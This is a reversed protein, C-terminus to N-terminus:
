IEWPSPGNKGSQVKALQGYALRTLASQNCRCDTTFPEPFYGIASTLPQRVVRSITCNSIQLEIFGYGATTSAYVLLGAIPKTQAVGDRHPKWDYEVLREHLFGRPRQLKLREWRFCLLGTRDLAADGKYYSGGVGVGSISYAPTELM